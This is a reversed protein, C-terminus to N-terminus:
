AAAGGDIYRVVILQGHPYRTNWADLTMTETTGNQTVSVDDPGYGVKQVGYVDTGSAHELKMLRQDLHKM